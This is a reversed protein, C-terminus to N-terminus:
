PAATEFGTLEQLMEELDAMAEAASRQGTLVQHVASFYAISVENYLSGSVSSPRAVAGGQFVPGLERYYPNAALIDVDDYLTAVTPLFAGEIARQKQVEPSTMFAVLQAAEDPHESYRSVGLQWGGLTGAHRATGAPLLALGFKDKILSDNAQGFAYAYPWNRMFAANGNQWISRSDEEQFGTVSPPSITGVWAATRELADVTAPNNVSVQQNIEIIPGGGASVQWELANCTLGEYAAGQWVYGWFNENGEAREGDQITAAMDELEDWNSPPGDYGYKELLDTRYYLLGVDTFFPMAILRGGVTNNAIIAPFHSDIQDALYPELDILHEALLGPWIVDIQYVDFQSSENDLLRQYQEIRETASEPGAVFRVIIGTERTFEQVLQSDLEAGVGNPVGIYTLTVAADEALDGAPSPSSQESTPSSSPSSQCASLSLLITLFVMWNQTSLLVELRM